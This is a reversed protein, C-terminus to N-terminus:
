KYVRQFIVTVNEQQKASLHYVKTGAASHAYADSVQDREWGKLAPYTQLARIMQSMSLESM